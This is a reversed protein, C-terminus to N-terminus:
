QADGKVAASAPELAPDLVEVDGQERLSRLWDDFFANVQQELLIEGIRGSVQALPPPAEGAAYQPLLTERYYTEIEEPSIHIGQRFRQEIFNLMEVRYRLYADVREATLGHSALFARWGADSACDAHVCAPLQRRLQSLREALEAPQPQAAAASEQRIEQEILARSILHELAQQPTLTQEGPQSPELVSLRIEDDVESQLIVSSNVVAVVRDLVVASSSVQGAPFSGSQASALAATALGTLCLAFLLRRHLVSNQFPVAEATGYAGCFSPPKLGQPITRMRSASLGCATLLQRRLGLRNMRFQTRRRM